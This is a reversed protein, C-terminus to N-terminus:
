RRDTPATLATVVTLATTATDATDATPAAPATRATPATPAGKSDVPQGSPACASLVVVLFLAVSAPEVRM